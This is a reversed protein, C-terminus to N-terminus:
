FSSPVSKDMVKSYASQRKNIKHVYCFAMAVVLIAVSGCVAAFTVFLPLCNAEDQAPRAENGNFIRRTGTSLDSCVSDSTNSCVREVVQGVACHSCPRCAQGSRFYGPVCGVIVDSSSTCVKLVVELRPIAPLSCPWCVTSNHTTQDMYTDAGCPACTRTDPVLKQGLSCSGGSTTLSVADSRVVDSLAVTWAFFNVFRIVSHM